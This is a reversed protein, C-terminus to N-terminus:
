PFYAKSYCIRDDPELTQNGSRAEGPLEENFVEYFLQDLQMAAGSILDRLRDNFNEFPNSTYRRLFIKVESILCNLHNISCSTSSVMGPFSIFLRALLNV